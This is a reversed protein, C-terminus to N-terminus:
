ILLQKFRLYLPLSSTPVHYAQPWERIPEAIQQDWVLAAAVLSDPQPSRYKLVVPAAKMLDHRMGTWYCCYSLGDESAAEGVIERAYDASTLGVGVQPQALGAAFLDRCPQLTVLLLLSLSGVLLWSTYRRRCTPQWALVKRRSSNM